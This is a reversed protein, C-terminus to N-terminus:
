VAGDALLPGGSFIGQRMRRAHGTVRFVLTEPYRYGLFEADVMAFLAEWCATVM